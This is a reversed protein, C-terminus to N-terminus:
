AIIYGTEAGPPARPLPYSNYYPAGEIEALLQCLHSPFIFFGASCSM